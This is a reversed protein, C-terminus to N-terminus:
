VSPRIRGDTSTPLEDAASPKNKDDRKPTSSYFCGYLILQIAGLISGTGNSILIFLDFRLLAYIVWICGNLFGALSLYFPMYEVSKTKVVMWMVDLPMAYMLINFAVCLIGAVLSRKHPTHLLGFTLGVVLVFFCIEGVLVSSVYMRKKKNAFIFYTIIYVSEIFLGFGNITIVLTSHPTVFPLGYFVWMACNLLTAMYPNPSFEEVDKRKIITYFTPAPSLFLFFSIINGIIGVVNRIAYTNM